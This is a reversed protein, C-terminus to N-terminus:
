ARRPFIAANMRAVVRALHAEALHASRKVM